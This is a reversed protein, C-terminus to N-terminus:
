GEGMGKRERRRRKEVFSGSCSLEVLYFLCFFIGFLFLFFLFFVVFFFVLFFVYVFTMVRKGRGANGGM